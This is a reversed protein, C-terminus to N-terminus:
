ERKKTPGLVCQDLAQRYLEARRRLPLNRYIKKWSEPSADYHAKARARKAAARAADALAQHENAQLLAAAEEAGPIRRKPKVFGVDHIHRALREKNIRPNIM